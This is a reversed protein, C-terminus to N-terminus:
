LRLADAAVGVNWVWFDSRFSASRYRGQGPLLMILGYALNLPVLFCCRCCVAEVKCFGGQLRIRLRSLPVRELFGLGALLVALKLLRCVAFKLPVLINRIQLSGRQNLDCFLASSIDVRRRFTQPLPVPSWTVTQDAWSPHDSPYQLIHFLLTDCKVMTRSFLLTPFVSASGSTAAV